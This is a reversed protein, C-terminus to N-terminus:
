VKTVDVFLKLKQGPQLYSKKNLQNWKVIDNIQISFKGAIRALSDGRRVKYTISRMAASAPVSSTRKNTSVVSAVSKWIALNQGPRITDKPAMNNWKALSRINVKYERSIDWFTDGQKVVYDIKYSGAKKTQRTALRQDQSLKYESLDQASTPILLFKGQRIFNDKIKNITKITQIDTNFKTAIKSLSDGQKIEYRQWKLRDQKSTLALKQRFQEAKDLPVIFTHPGNPATAWQSYGPNLGHLEGVPMDAFKAALAIDMQSKANVVAIQPENPISKWVLNFEEPRKLLDALALLKPVYAATEKPLDLSWFDTPLHKRKNRKIARLIRGEGSNYAAIANLWDGELTKHLFSLYDLASHTSEIVDRRGDYWWNHKLGFRKATGPIFQWMGSARGHSYAFPDFASEVIPLLALEVPMQRREIEEIIFYLFPTARKSIRDLYEQHKAYWNRQAIVKRNQPIEISLQSQMRLWLDTYIEPASEETTQPDPHLGATTLAEYVEQPTAPNPPAYAMVMADTAEPQVDVPSTQQNSLGNFTSQCGALAFLCFGLSITRM